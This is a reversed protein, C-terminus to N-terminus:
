YQLGIGFSIEYLSSKERWDMNIYKQFIIRGLDVGICGRVTFSSWKKPYVLVEIGGAYFGDKPAFYKDTIKNYTLAVDIFPSIQMDFIFPKLYKNSFYTNFLRVPLDLNLIMASITTCSKINTGAYYIDDRIGRLRGGISSGDTAFFKNSKDIFYNFIYFRSTLGITNLLNYDWFSKKTFYSVEASIIPYLINRQFNYTFSNSISTSLGNRFNNIWNIKSGSLSHGFSVSPSSLSANNPNIGDKDWNINFELYPKYIVDGLFSLMCITIPISLIANERFYLEDNYFTYDYDKVSYQYFEFNLNKNELPFSIKLGTKANWAPTKSGIAYYFKYDNIWTSDFIGLKFPHDYVLTTGFEKNSNESDFPYIFYIDSSLPNLSGLFNMDKVKIKMNLGINSDYKPYPVALIHNTDVLTVILNIEVIEKTIDTVTEIYDIQISDFARLNNLKQKYELIYLSLEEENLFIKKLDPSVKQELAYINTQGSLPISSGTINYQVDNIHYKKASLSYTFIFLEIFLLIFSFKKHLSM